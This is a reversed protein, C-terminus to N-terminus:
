LDCKARRADNSRRVALRGNKTKRWRRMGDRRAKRGTESLRYSRMAARRCEICAGSNVLREAAHGHKCPEDTFFLTLGRAKATARSIKRM